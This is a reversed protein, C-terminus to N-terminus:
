AKRQANQCDDSSNRKEQLDPSQIGKFSAGYIQKIIQSRKKYVNRFRVKHLKLRWNIEQLSIGEELWKKKRDNKWRSLIKKKQFYIEFLKKWLLYQKIM